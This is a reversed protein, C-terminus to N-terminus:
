VAPSHAPADPTPAGPGDDADPTLVVVDGTVSSYRIRLDADAPAVAGDSRSTTREQGDVVVRGSMSSVSVHAREHPARVTLSGSVSTSRISCHGDILDLAVDSRVANVTVTSLESRRATVAGSASDVELTGRLRRCDVDGSVTKVDVDGVVDDVTLSGSVTRARTTARLGAVLASATVTSVTCEVDEPVSLALQVTARRFSGAVSTLGELTGLDVTTGHTVSLREGDWRVTLEPGTIQSVELHAASSDDHTLIDVHGGIVTVHLHRVREGEDGVDLIRPADLHWEQAM